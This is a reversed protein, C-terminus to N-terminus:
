LEVVVERSVRNAPQQTPDEFWRFYTEAGEIGQQLLARKKHDTIDFDTTKVDLTNIYITRQWDDGHLHQHEQTNMIGQLLAKAYDTFNEIPKGALPEDYRYLAIQQQTDLRLGLTQRNYIYPSRQPHSLMFSANERNYYETPRAAEPEQPDIYKMRDFLKVPYNLQVGGDVYVDGREGRRVACFFLPISMSIRLAEALTMTPDREVSFTEAYGTALNTGVVYLDPRGAARLDGFTAKETGLKRKIVEGIWTGFFDGKYYGFDKSLRRVDRIAGFSDDMFKRFDVSNMLELSEINSYGLAVILANIAGASTGGVRTLRTMLGRQELIQLAGVYAIGKVGGGEFVLNRVQPTM